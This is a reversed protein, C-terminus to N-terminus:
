KSLARNFFIRSPQLSTKKLIFDYKGPISQDQVNNKQYYFFDNRPSRLSIEALVAVSSPQVRAQSEM